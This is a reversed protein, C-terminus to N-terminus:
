KNIHLKCYFKGILCVVQHNKAFTHIQTVMIVAMYFMEIERFLKRMGKATLEKEMGWGRAVM